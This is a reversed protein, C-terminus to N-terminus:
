LFGSRQKQAKVAPSDENNINIYKDLEKFAETNNDWSKILEGYEEFFIERIEELYRFIKKDKGKKSRGIFFWERKECPMIYIKSGEMELKKIEDNGLENIFILIASIFGGFLTEDIIETAAQHYVSIGNSVIWFEELVTM